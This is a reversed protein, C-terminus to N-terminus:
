KTKSNKFGMFLFRFKLWYEDEERDKDDGKMDNEELYRVKGNQFTM